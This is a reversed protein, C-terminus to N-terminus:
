NFCLPLKVKVKDKVEGDERFSVPPEKGPPLVVPAHVRDSMEM